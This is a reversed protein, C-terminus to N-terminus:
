MKGARSLKEAEALPLPQQKKLDQLVKVQQPQLKFGALLQDTVDVQAADTHKKLGETDWKSILQSINADKKVQAVQDKMDGLVDDIPATSFVQLHLREQSQELQAALPKFKNTDGVTRAQRATAM